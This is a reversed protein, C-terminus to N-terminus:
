RIPWIPLRRPAPCLESEAPVSGEIGSAIMDLIRWSIVGKHPPTKGSSRAIVPSSPHMAAIGVAAHLSLTIAQQLKGTLRGL